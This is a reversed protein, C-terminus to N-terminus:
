LDKTNQKTSERLERGGEGIVKVKSLYIAM